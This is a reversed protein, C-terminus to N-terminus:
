AQPRVPRSELFSRLGALERIAHKRQREAREYDPPTTSFVAGRRVKLYKEKAWKRLLHRPCTLQTTEGRNYAVLHPWWDRGEQTDPVLYPIIDLRKVGGAARWMRTIYHGPMGIEQSAESVLLSRGKCHDFILKLVDPEPTQLDLTKTMVSWVPLQVVAYENADWALRELRKRSPPPEVVLLVDHPPPAQRDRWILLGGKARWKEVQGLNGMWPAHLATVIDAVPETDFLRPAISLTSDFLVNHTFSENAERCAGALNDTVFLKTM